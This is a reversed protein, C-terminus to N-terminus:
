ETQTQMGIAGLKKLKHSFIEVTPCPLSISALLSTIALQEFVPLISPGLGLAALRQVKTGGEFLYYPIQIRELLLALLLGGFSGGAILVRPERSSTRTRGTISPASQRRKNSNDHYQYDLKESLTPSFPLSSSSSSSSSPPITEYYLPLVDVSTSNM